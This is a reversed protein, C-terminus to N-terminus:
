LVMEVAEVDKLDGTTEGIENGFAGEVFAGAASGVVAGGIV